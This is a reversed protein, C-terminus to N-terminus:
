GLVNPTCAASNIEGDGPAASIVPFDSVLCATKRGFGYGLVPRSCINQYGADRGIVDSIKVSFRSCNEGM